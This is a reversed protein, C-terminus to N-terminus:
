PLQGCVELYRDEVSEVRLSSLGSGELQAEVEQPLFAAALSHAFDRRLMAPAGVAHCEVLEQLAEPNPPRRLDRVVVLAGPAAWQGM